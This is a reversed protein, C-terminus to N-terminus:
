WEDETIRRSVRKSKLHGEIAKEIHWYCIVIFVEKFVRKLANIFALERDVVWVGPLSTGDPYVLARYIQLTWSYDEETIEDKKLLAFAVTLTKRQSDFVCIDLLPFGNQNTQFTCDSLHVDGFIRALKIAKRPMFFAHTLRGNEDSKQESIWTDKLDGESIRKFCAAVSDEQGLLNAAKVKARFNSIDRSSYSGIHDGLEEDARRMRYIIEMNTSNRNLERMILKEHKELFTKKRYKPIVWLDVVDHNHSGDVVDICYLDSLKRTRKDISM